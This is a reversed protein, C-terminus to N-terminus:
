EVQRYTKRLAAELHLDHFRSLGRAMARLASRFPMLRVYGASEPFGDEVWENIAESDWIVM